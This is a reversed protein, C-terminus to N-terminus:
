GRRSSGEGTESAQEQELDIARAVLSTLPIFHPKLAEKSTRMLVWELQLAYALLPKNVPISLTHKSSTRLPRADLFIQYRGDVLKLRVDQWFRETRPKPFAAQHLRERSVYESQPQPPEPPPGAATRCRWCVSAARRTAHVLAAPSRTMM